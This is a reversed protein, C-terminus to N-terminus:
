LPRTDDVFFNRLKRRPFIGESVPVFQCEYEQRFWWDAMLRREEDLFSPSIRPCQDATVTYRQWTTEDKWAKYFFGQEGAPTSMALISGTSVALVPRLAFYALDSVRAAEDIILLGVSSFGRTHPSRGPLGVVRSGNPMLISPHNEGDGRPHIRLRRLFANMKRVLEASQRLSPALVLTLNGPPGFVLQHVALIAAVTSKGWQRSCCLIRRPHGSALIQQQAPDPHFDLARRAFASPDHASLFRSAISLAM